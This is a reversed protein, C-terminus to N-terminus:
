WGIRGQGVGDHMGATCNKERTQERQHHHQDDGLAIAGKTISKIMGGNHDIVFQIDISSFQSRNSLRFQRRPETFVDM